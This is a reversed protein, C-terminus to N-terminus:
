RGGRRGPDRGGFLAPDTTGYVESSDRIDPLIARPVNLEAM